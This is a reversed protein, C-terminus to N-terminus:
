GQTVEKAKAAIKNAYDSGYVDSLTRSSGDPKRGLYYLHAVHARVSEDWSPFSKPGEPTGAGLNAPNRHPRAAGASQWSNTEHISQVVALFPDIGGPPAYKWYYGVIADVDYDKYESSDPLQRKLYSMAQEKSGSAPGLIPSGSSLAAGTTAASTATTTATIAADGLALRGWAQKAVGIYYPETIAAGPCQPKNYDRHSSIG